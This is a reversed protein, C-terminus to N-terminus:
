WAHPVDAYNPAALADQEWFSPTMVLNGSGKGDQVVPVGRGDGGFGTAFFVYDFRQIGTTPMGKVPTLEVQLQGRVICGRGAVAGAVGRPTFWM